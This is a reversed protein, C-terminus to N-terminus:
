INKCGLISQLNLAKEKVDGIIIQYILSLNNEDYATKYHSFKERLEKEPMYNLITKAFNAKVLNKAEDETIIKCQGSMIHAFLFSLNRVLTHIQKFKKKDKIHAEEEFSLFYNNLTNCENMVEIILKSFNEFTINDFDETLVKPLQGHKQIGLYTFNELAKKFALLKKSYYDILEKNELREAQRRDIFWMACFTILGTIVGSVLTPNLHQNLLDLNLYDLVFIFLIFFLLCIMPYSIKKFM